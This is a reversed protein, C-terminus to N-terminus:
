GEQNQEIPYPKHTILVSEIVQFAEDAEAEAPLSNM